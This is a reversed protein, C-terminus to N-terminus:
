MGEHVNNGGRRARNIARSVMWARHHMPYKRATYPPPVVGPTKLPSHIKIYTKGKTFHTNILGM